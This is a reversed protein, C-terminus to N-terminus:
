VQEKSQKDAPQPEAKAIAALAPKWFPPEEGIGAILDLLGGDAVISKLVALMEPSAMFLDANAQAEAKPIVRVEPEMEAYFDADRDINFEAITNETADFVVFAFGDDEVHWPGPTHM